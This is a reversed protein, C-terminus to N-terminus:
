GLLRFVCVGLFNTGLDKWLDRGVFDYVDVKSVQQFQILIVSIKVLACSSLFKELHDVLELLELIFDCRTSELGLLM